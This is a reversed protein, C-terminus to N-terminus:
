IAATFFVSSWKSSAYPSGVLMAGFLGLGGSDLLFGGAYGWVVLIWCLGVLVAVVGLIWCLGVLIAGVWWFLGLCAYVVLIWRLGVLMAM